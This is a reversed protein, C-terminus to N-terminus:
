DWFDISLQDNKLNKKNEKKYKTKIINNEIDYMNDEPPLIDWEQNISFIEKEEERIQKNKPVSFDIFIEEKTEKQVNKSNNFDIDLNEKQKEQYERLFYVFKSFVSMLSSYTSKKVFLIWYKNKLPNLVKSVFSIKFKDDFDTKELFDKGNELLNLLNNKGFRSSFKERNKIYKDNEQEKLYKEWELLNNKDM